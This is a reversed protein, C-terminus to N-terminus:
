RAIINLAALEGLATTQEGGTIGAPWVLEAANVEALRVIAVGEADAASADVADYLVGAAAESGDVAAPDLAKYKGSATVKGLVAGAELTEGSLVTITERSISATARPSSSSAPTGAKRFSPCRGRRDSTRTAPPTSPRPTSRLSLRISRPSRVQSRITTAEDDAARAELLARRVDAVPPAKTIFGAALDGRGALACVEHVESVYALTARREDARVADLDIVQATPQPPHAEAGLGAGATEPEPAERAPEPEAAEPQEPEVVPVPRDEDPEPMPDEQTAAAALAALQPPPHRFRSLDFHAAMRVPQEVRDALGLEVAEQASLWTEDRMLAEIEADDRGSKDRYAAVMGAKMRELAEAMARMDAATGAVLGSPDHLVLMANEPMVVEDGAMAIMSAISAAIGDIWVTIAADHRKLANYIAVGDFVSGGPSNIRVTLEAVPGLAKLEDLFAKAPIGFAGIEDYIVIEAGRAQARFDYWRKM